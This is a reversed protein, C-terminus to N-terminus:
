QEIIRIINAISEDGSSSCCDKLEYNELNRGKLIKKIYQSFDKETSIFPIGKLGHFNMSSSFNVSIVPKGLLISQILVVSTKGIVLVSNKILEHLKESSSGGVIRIRSDHSFKNYDQSRLSPHLKIVMKLSNPLMELIKEITHIEEDMSMVYKAIKTNANAIYLIYDGNDVSSKKRETRWFGVEHVLDSPYGRSIILRKYFEGWVLFEPLMSKDFSPSIFFSSNIPLSPSIIGRQPSIVRIGKENATLSLVKGLTDLGSSSIILLPHEKIIFNRCINLANEALALKKPILNKFVNRVLPYVNFGDITLSNQFDQEKELLSLLHQYHQIRNNKRFSEKISHYYVWPIYKGKIIQSLDRIIDGFLGGFRPMSISITSINKFNKAFYSELGELYIDNIIFDKSDNDLHSFTSYIGHNLFLANKKNSNKVYIRSFIKSIIMRLILLWNGDTSFPITELDDIQELTENEVDFGYSKSLSDLIQYIPYDFNGSIIVRTPKRNDIITRITELYYIAEFLGRPSEWLGEYILPWLSVKDYTLFQIINQGNYIKASAWTQLWNESHKVIMESAHNQAYRHINMGSESTIRSEDSLNATIFYANKKQFLDQNAGRGCFILTTDSKEVM